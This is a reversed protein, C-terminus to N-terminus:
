PVFGPSAIDSAIPAVDRRKLDVGKFMLWLGMAVEFIISPVGVMLEVSSIRIAPPKVFTYVLLIGAVRATMRLSAEERNTM